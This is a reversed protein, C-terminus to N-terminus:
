SRRGTWLGHLVLVALILVGMFKVEGAVQGLGSALTEPVTQLWQFLSVLLQWLSKLLDIISQADKESM